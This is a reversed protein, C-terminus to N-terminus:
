VVTFSTIITYTESNIIHLVNFNEQNQNAPVVRVKAPSEPANAPNKWADCSKKWPEPDTFPRIKPRIKSFFYNWISDLFFYMPQKKKNKIYFNNKQTGALFGAKWPGLARFFLPHHRFFDPWRGSFGAPFGPRDPWNFDPAYALKVSDPRFDPWFIYRQNWRKRHTIM